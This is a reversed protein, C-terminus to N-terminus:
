AKKVRSTEGKWETISISVTSSTFGAPLRGGKVDAGRVAAEIDQIDEKSLQLRASKANEEVRAANRTGPIPVFDPYATLIWALAIQTPTADYKAAVAEFATVLKLNTGLNEESFRPMFLRVDAPGFDARSKYMRCVTILILLKGRGLPSYPIITVGLARAQAVFGSTEVELDFPSFEVQVAVVKEGVGPVAKARRLVETGCDSLGVYGVEGSEIYPRVTELVLEIPTDPDVRHQFYLDIHSKVRKSEDTGDPNPDLLALSSELRKKIYSPQSNPRWINEANETLDKAGFKTSLFIEGRRGTTRFWKGITTESAGYVDATDWFTIGSDAAHTLMQLVSAEDASGYFAGGLGMAGLGIASVTPGNRGLKRTPYLSM